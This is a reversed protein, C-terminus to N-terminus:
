DCECQDVPTQGPNQCKNIIFDCSSSPYRTIQLWYRQDQENISEIQITDNDNDNYNYTFIPIKNPSSKGYYNIASIDSDRIGDIAHIFEQESYVTAKQKQDSTLNCFTTLQTSNNEESNPCFHDDANGCANKTEYIYWSYFNPNYQIIVFDIFYKDILQINKKEIHTIINYYKTYDLQIRDKNNNICNLISQIYGSLQFITKHIYIEEFNLNGHNKVGYKFETNDHSCVCKIEKPKCILTNALIGITLNFIILFIYNKCKIM